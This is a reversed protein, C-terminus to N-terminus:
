GPGALESLTTAVQLPVPVNTGQFGGFPRFSGLAPHGRLEARLLPPDIRYDWQIDTHWRGFEADAREYPLSVITAVYYIGPRDPGVIQLWVHDGLAIQDRYRPTSWGTKAHSAWRLTSTM